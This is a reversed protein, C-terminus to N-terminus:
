PSIGRDGSRALRAAFFGDTDADFPLIKVFGEATIMSPRMGSADPKVIQFEPHTKLFSAVVEENERRLLSCTAYVLSGGEKVFGHNSELLGLQIGAYREATEETVRWKIDPNRRITGVGTCPADIFVLDAAFPVPLPRKATVAEIISVGARRARVDLEQLRSKDPDSAYIKGEGKMLDALHLSKGGAGACADLVVIGPNPDAVISLLQSGEDQLEFWGDKFAASAQANFRKAAVLGAPACAATETPIGEKELRARCNDRSSKSLNVRLTVRAPANLSRLLRETESGFQDHWEMVMWDQFSHQVALRVLDTEKALFELGKNKAIWAAYTNLDTEPFFSKWL